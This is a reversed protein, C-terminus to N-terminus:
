QALEMDTWDTYNQVPEAMDRAQAAYYYRATSSGVFVYYENPLTPNGYPDTGPQSTWDRTFASVDYCRIYYEVGNEDTAEQVKMYHYYGSPDGGFHPQRIPKVDWGLDVPTPPQTDLIVLAPESPTTENNWMDRAM